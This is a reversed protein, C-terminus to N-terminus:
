LDLEENALKIFVKEMSPVNMLTKLNESTDIRYIKGKHLLAVRDCMEEVEPMNHSTFIITINKRKKIERLIERVEAAIAPDLSATPEDLLLLDPDNILSKCLNVRTKQGASLSDVRKNKLETIRFQSLLSDITKDYDKVGYLMAFIKLNRYVTLNNALDAYATAINMRNKLESENTFFDKGFIQITGASPTILGILINLTTSKGAGNPGLIGFVEGEKVEFNIGELANVLNKGSSFKKRLDKVELITKQM